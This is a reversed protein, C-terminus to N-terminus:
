KLSNHSKTYDTYTKAIIQNEMHSDNSNMETSMKIVKAEYTM